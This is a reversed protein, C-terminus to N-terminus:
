RKWNVTPFRIVLWQKWNCKPKVIPTELIEIIEELEQHSFVASTHLRMKAIGIADLRRQEETEYHREM